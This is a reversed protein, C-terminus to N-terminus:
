RGPRHIARSALRREPHHTRRLVRDTGSPEWALKRQTIFAELDNKPDWNNVTIALITEGSPISEVVDGPQWNWSYFQVYYGRSHREGGDLAWSAPYDLEFGATEDRYTLAEFSAPQATPAPLETPEPTSSPLPPNTPIPTRTPSPPNTPEVTIKEAAPGCATLMLILICIWFRGIMNTKM